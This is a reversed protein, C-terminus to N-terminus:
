RNLMWAHCLASTSLTEPNNTFADVIFDSNLPPMAGKNPALLMVTAAEYPMLVSHSAQWFSTAHGTTTLTFYPHLERNTNNTVHLTIENIATKQHVLHINKVALSLPSPRLVLGLILLVFSGLLGGLVPKQWKPFLPRRHAAPSITLASLLVFPILDILYSAFSRLTWFLILSPMLFIVPKLQRYYFVLSAVCGVLVLIGLDNFLALSGGGIREFLSLDILGQGAPITLQTLPLLIGHLWAKFNAAIFPANVIFFTAAAILAYRLATKVGQKYDSDELIFAIFLFPAIFWPTQKVAAALGFAIPPGWRWYGRQLNFHDWRYASVLLFPFFLVDTVGGLIYSNYINLSGLLLALWRYNEPLLLYFLVVSSLWFIVDTVVASHNIIGLYLLPLYPYIAMAPYSLHHLIHGTVTYTYYLQDLHFHSLAIALNKTYPNYGRLLLQAAWQDYSIEDTGYSRTTLVNVVTWAMLAVAYLVLILVRYYPPRYGALGLTIFLLGFGVLGVSIAGYFDILMVSSWIRIGWLLLFLGSLILNLDLPNPQLHQSKM